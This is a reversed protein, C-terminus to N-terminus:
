ATEEVTENFDTSAREVREAAFIERNPVAARGSRLWRLVWEGARRTMARVPQRVTTLGAAAAEPIDDFGAVALRAGRARAADLVGLAMHDNAAFVATPRDTAALWADGAARGSARDFRGDWFWDDRWAGRRALADRFGKERDRANAMERKGGVFGIRRHGRAWLSDAMDASAAANDVDISPWGALAGNVVVVPTEPRIGGPRDAPALLVWADVVGTPNVQVAWGPLGEAL